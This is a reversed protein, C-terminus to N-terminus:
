GEMFRKIEQEAFLVRRGVRQAHIEGTKVKQWLTVKSIKLVEAAEARTYMKQPREKKHDAELTKEVEERVIGRLFDEVHPLFLAVFENVKEM